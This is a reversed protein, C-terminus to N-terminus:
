CCCSNINSWTFSTERMVDEGTKVVALSRTTSIRLGYMAESVIYERLMPGLAARGDGRRSFPTKGLVKLSFILANM